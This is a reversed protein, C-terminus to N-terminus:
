EGGDEEQSTSVQEETEDPKITISTLFEQYAMDKVKVLVKNIADEVVSPSVHNVEILRMIQEDIMSQVRMRVEFQNM